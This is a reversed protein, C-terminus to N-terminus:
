QNTAGLYLSRVQSASLATSYLALDDFYANLSFRPTNRDVLSRGIKFVNRNNINATGAATGSNSAAGDIYLTLTRGSRTVVVQHWNGDNYGGRASRFGIYNTGAADQDVEASIYGDSSLRVSFFNGNGSDARNGVLDALSLSSDSTQFWFAVTFAQTGFQGINSGFSVYSNDAGTIRVAAGAGVKSLDWWGANNLVGNVANRGGKSDRAINGSGEDFTWLHDQASIQGVFLLLALSAIFLSKTM